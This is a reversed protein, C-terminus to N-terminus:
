TILGYCNSISSNKQPLLLKITNFAFPYDIEFVRCFLFPILIKQCFVNLFGQRDNESPESSGSGDDDEYFFTTM